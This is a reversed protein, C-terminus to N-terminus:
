LSANRQDLLLLLKNRANEDIFSTRQWGPNIVQVTGWDASFVVNSNPQKNTSISSVGFSKANTVSIWGTHIQVSSPHESNLSFEESKSESSWSRWQRCFSSNVASNPINLLLIWKYYVTQTNLANIHNRNQYNHAAQIYTQARKLYAGRQKM